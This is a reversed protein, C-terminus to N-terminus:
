NKQRTSSNEHALIQHEIPPPVEYQRPSPSESTQRQSNIPWPSDKQRPSPVQSPQTPYVAPILAHEQRPSPCPSGAKNVQLIFLVGTLLLGQPGGGPCRESSSETGQYLGCMSRGSLYSQILKTACPPVNLDSFNCLIDSNSM